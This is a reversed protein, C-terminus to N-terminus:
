VKRLLSNKLELYDRTFYPHLQAEHRVAGFPHSTLTAIPPAQIRKAVSFGSILKWFHELDEIFSKTDAFYNEINQPTALLKQLTKNQYAFLIDFPSLQPQEILTKFLRDHYEYILPDGKGQTIDQNESLEASPIVDITEQPIAKFKFIHENLYNALEYMQYKWLDATACMFGALDGYMTAYGITTETKNANCTFAANLSSAVAALIRASRDRAQINEQNFPSLVIYEEHQDAFKFATNHLQNVTYNLSEEVPITAFPCKLNDALKKAINKTLDSNFRTPMNVLYVNEAGIVNSFLAANVASDIGGSAGIVVKKLGLYNTFKYILYSLATYIKAPESTVTPNLTFKTELSIKHEFTFKQQTYNYFILGEEFLDLPSNEENSYIGSSGALTYINKGNNIIGVPNVYITPEKLINAINEDILFPRNDLKLNIYQEPNLSTNSDAQLNLKEDRINLTIKNPMKELKGNQAIYINESLNEDVNGFITVINQSHQSIEENYSLCEKLFSKQQLLNGVLNGCICMAPFIVLDAGNNHALKILNLIKEKNVFPNGPIVEMQALCIKLM